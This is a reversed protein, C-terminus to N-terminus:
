FTSYIYNPSDLITSLTMCSNSTLSDNRVPIIISHKQCLIDIEHFSNLSFESLTDSNNGDFLLNILNPDYCYQYLYQSLLNSDFHYYQLFTKLFAFYKTRIISQLVLENHFFRNTSIFVMINFTISSTDIEKYIVGGTDFNNNLFRLVSISLFDYNLNMYYFFRKALGVKVKYRNCKKYFQPDYCKQLIETLNYKKLYLLFLYSNM